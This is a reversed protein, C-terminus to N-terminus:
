EVGQVMNRVAEANGINIINVGRDIRKILGALV